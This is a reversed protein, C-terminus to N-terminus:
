HRHFEVTSHRTTTSRLLSAGHEQTGRDTAGWGGQWADETGYLQGLPLDIVENDYDAREIIDEVQQTVWLEGARESLCM